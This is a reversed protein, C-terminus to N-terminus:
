PCGSAPVLTPGALKESLVSRSTKKGLKSAATFSPPMMLTIGDYLSISPTGEDM